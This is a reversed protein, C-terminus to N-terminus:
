SRSPVSSILNEAGKICRHHVLGNNDNDSLKPKGPSSGSVGEKGHVELCTSPM